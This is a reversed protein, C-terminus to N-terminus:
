HERKVAANNITKSNLTKWMFQNVCV